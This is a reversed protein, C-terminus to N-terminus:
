GQAKLVAAFEIRGNGTEYVREVAMRTLGHRALADVIQRFNTPTFKWAHVDIYTDPRVEYHRMAQLVIEATLQPPEGHDGAWHRQNDNHCTLAIHEIVHRASHRTRRDVFAELVEQLTTDPLFHDFCYRKDPILLIMAGGPALANEVAQFHRVLDPQHEINHSSFVIDFSAGAAGSLDGLYHITEPCNAPDIGIAVARERLADADLVDMYRVNPSRFVPQCFPGVELVSLDPGIMAVLNERLSATAAIRGEARGYTEYHALMQTDDFGALDPYSSRLLDASYEPPWQLDSMRNEMPTAQSM